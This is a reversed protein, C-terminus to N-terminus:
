WPDACLTRGRSPSLAIPLCRLLLFSLEDLFVQLQGTAGAMMRGPQQAAPTGGHPVLAPPTRDLDHDALASCPPTRWSDVILLHDGSHDLQPVVEAVQTALAQRGRQAEPQRVVLAPLCAALTLNSEGRLQAGLQQADARRGSRSSRASFRQTPATVRLPGGAGQHQLDRYAGEHRTPPHRYRCGPSRDPQGRRRYRPRRTQM